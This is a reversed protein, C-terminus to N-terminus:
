SISHESRWVYRVRNVMIQEQLAALPDYLELLTLYAAEIVVPALTEFADCIPDVSWVQDDLPGGVCLGTRAPKLGHGGDGVSDPAM